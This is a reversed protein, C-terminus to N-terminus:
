SYGELLPTVRGALSPPLKAALAALIDARRYRASFHILLIAENQFADAQAILEDLHTHGWARADAPTVADSARRTLCPELMILSPLCAGDVFTCEVILLRARLADHTVGPQAGAAVWDAGTDGTFALVPAEVVDSVTAGSRRMAALAAGDLGALEPRLKQRRSYVCYGQSAVPHTTPFPRVVHRGDRLAVDGGLALPTM